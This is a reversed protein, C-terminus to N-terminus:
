GPRRNVLGAASGPATGLRRYPRTLGSGLGPTHTHPSHGESVEVHSEDGAGLLDGAIMWIAVAAGTAARATMRGLQSHVGGRLASRCRGKAATPRASGRFSAAPLEVTLVGGAEWPTTMRGGRALMMLSPRNEAAVTTRLM